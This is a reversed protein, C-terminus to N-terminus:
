VGEGPREERGDVELGPSAPRLANWAALAHLVVLLGTFVVLLPVRLGGDIAPAGFAFGWLRDGLSPTAGTIAIGGVHAALFARIWLTAFALMLGDRFRGALIQGLGPVIASATAYLHRRRFAM